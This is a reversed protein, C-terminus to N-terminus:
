RRCARPPKVEADIKGFDFLRWRLAETGSAQLAQSTFLRNASLSDLGLAGVLSIKPYYRAGSPRIPVTGIRSSNEWGNPKLEM